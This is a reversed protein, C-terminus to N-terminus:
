RPNVLSYEGFRWRWSVAHRTELVEEIDFEVLRKAGAVRQVREPDWIVKAKGVLQLTSGTLFDVLLLGAQSNLRLNGFTQFMNNGAYDPFVLQNDSVVQV